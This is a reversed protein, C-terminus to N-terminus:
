KRNRKRLLSSLIGMLQKRNFIVSVILIAAGVAATVPVATIIWQGFSGCRGVVWKSLFFVLASGTGFYVIYNKVVLWLSIKLAKRNCVWM